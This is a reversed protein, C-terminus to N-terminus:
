EAQAYAAIRWEKGFQAFCLRDAFVPRLKGIPAWGSRGSPLLLEVHTYPVGPAEGPKAPPHAGAIPLALDKVTAVAAGGSPRETLTLESRAYVWEAPDDPEDVRRSAQDLTKVDILKATATGCVLPSGAEQTLVPDTALHDLLDWQAGIETPGDANRGAARFGFAVKFNHVGDRAPDFEDAPREGFRWAFDPAVLAAVAAVNKAAVAAAFKERMTDLAPDGPFAPLPRMAVEPYPVRKIALAPTSSLAIAILLLYATSSPLRVPDM